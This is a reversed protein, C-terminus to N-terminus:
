SIEKYVLKLNELGKIDMIWLSSLRKVFKECCKTDIYIMKSTYIKDIFLSYLSFSFTTSRVEGAWELFQIEEWSQLTCWLLTVLATGFIRSYNFICLLNKYFLVARVFSYLIKINLSFLWNSKTNLQLYYFCIISLLYYYFNAITLWSKHCEHIISLYTSVEDNDMIM